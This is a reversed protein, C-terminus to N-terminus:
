VVSTRVVISMALSAGDDGCSEKHVDSRVPEGNMAVVGSSKLAVHNVVYSKVMRRLGCM